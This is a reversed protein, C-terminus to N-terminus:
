VDVTEGWRQVQNHDVGLQDLARGAMADALDTITQPHHYFGPSAPMIIAGARHAKEMNQIHVLNFPTERVMLVLPKKEKLCVDAARAILCDAVGNAIAGLTKMSCPAIIMGSHRFSGSASPAFLDHNDYLTLTANPDPQCGTQRIYALLADTSNKGTYDIEHSLVEYGAESIVTHVALGLTLLLRLLRIGYIAGSAGCIAVVIPKVPHQNM